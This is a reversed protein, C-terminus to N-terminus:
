QPPTFDNPQRALPPPRTNDFQFVSVVSFVCLYVALVASLVNISKLSMEYTEMVLVM